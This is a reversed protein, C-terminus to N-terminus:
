FYMYHQQCALNNIDYTMVNLFWHCTLVYFANVVDSVTAKIHKIYPEAKHKLENHGLLAMHRSLDPDVNAGTVNPLPKNGSPVLGYGSGINVSWWRLGTVNM